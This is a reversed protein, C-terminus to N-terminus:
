PRTRRPFLPLAFLASLGAALWVTTWSGFSLVHAIALPTLFFGVYVATNAIGLATGAHATGALTALETYAVGHWVSVCVGALVLM